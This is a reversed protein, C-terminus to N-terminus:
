NGDDYEEGAVPNTPFRADWQQCIEDINAEIEDLVEGPVEDPDPCSDLLGHRRLGYRWMREDKRRITVHPEEYLPENDLIKVKWLQGLKRPLPLNYPM